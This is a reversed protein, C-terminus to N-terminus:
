SKVRSGTNGRTNNGYKAKNSGAMELGSGYKQLFRKIRRGRIRYDVGGGTGSIEARLMNEGWYDKKVVKRITQLNKTWPFLREDKINTLNYEREPKIRRIIESISM